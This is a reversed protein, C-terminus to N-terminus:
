DNSETANGDTYREETRIVLVQVADHTRYITARTEWAINGLWIAAATLVGIAMQLVIKWLELKM